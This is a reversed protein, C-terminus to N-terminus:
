EVCKPHVGVISAPVINGLFYLTEVRRANHIPFVLPYFDLLSCIVLMPSINQILHSPSQGLEAEHLDLSILLRTVKRRILLLYALPSPTLSPMGPLPVAYAFACPPLIAIACKPCAPFNM